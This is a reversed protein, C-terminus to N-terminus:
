WSHLGLCGSIYVIYCQATQRLQNVDLLVLIDIGGASVRMRWQNQQPPQSGSGTGRGAVLYIDPGAGRRRGSWGRREMTAGIRIRRFLFRRRRRRRGGM